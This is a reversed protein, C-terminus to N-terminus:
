QGLSHDRARQSLEKIEQAFTMTLAEDRTSLQAGHAKQACKRASPGMEM